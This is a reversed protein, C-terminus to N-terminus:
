FYQLSFMLELGKATQLEISIALSRSKWYFGKEYMNPTWIQSNPM